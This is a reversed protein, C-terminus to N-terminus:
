AEQEAKWFEYNDDVQSVYNSNEDYVHGDGDFRREM